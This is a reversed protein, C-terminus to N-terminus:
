FGWVLGGGFGSAPSYTPLVALQATKARRQRGGVSSLQRLVWPYLAYSIQTSFIGVGAGVLVDSCWHRNNMMRLVGTSTAIAYGGVSIWPNTRYYERHLVTATVFAEATHASPFADYSTGDPREVRTWHKVEGTILNSITRSMGYLVTTGLLSHESRVGALHLGAVAVLPAYRLYDDARTRFNPLEEQIEERIEYNLGEQAQPNVASAIGALGLLLPVAVIRGSPCRWLSSRFCRQPMGKRFTPVTDAAVSIETATSDALGQASVPIKILLSFFLTLSCLRLM